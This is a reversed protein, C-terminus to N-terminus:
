RQRRCPTPPCSKMRSVYTHLNINVVNGLIWFSEMLMNPIVSMTLGAQRYAASNIIQRTDMANLSHCDSARTQLKPIRVYKWSYVSVM